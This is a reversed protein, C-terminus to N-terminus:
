EEEGIIINVLAVIDVVNIIEDDNMDGQLGFGEDEFMGTVWFTFTSPVEYESNINLIPCDSSIKQEEIGEYSYEQNGYSMQQSYMSDSTNCGLIRIFEWTASSEDLIELNLTSLLYFGDLNLYESLDLQKYIDGGM